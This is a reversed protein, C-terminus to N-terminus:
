EKPPRPKSRSRDYRDQGHGGHHDRYPKRYEGQGSSGYSGSGEAPAGGSGPARDYRILGRAKGTSLRRIITEADRLNAQILSYSEFVRVDGMHRRDIGSEREIFEIISMKDFNDRRGLRLFLRVTGHREVGPGPKRIERYRSRDFYKGYVHSIFNTLVREPDKEALLQRAIELSLADMEVQNRLKAESAADLVAGSETEDASQAEGTGPATEDAARAEASSKGKFVPERAAIENLRKLLRDRRAQLVAEIEPVNQKKIDARTASKIFMLKRYESPTVFTIAMGERGARGTRGIRHVYSEPDQPLSFNIVHTLNEVDIGRAAVDTAALITVQKDRFKALVDERQAQSVDGSLAEVAYGRLAMHKALEGTLVKTRCFILGYFDAEMDIIRCLAEFKDEERVEFYIQETLATTLASAKVEVKEPNKLFKEAMQMIRQPMTASFLLVRRNPNVSELIREVDEAFGMDLMEDAEDLVLYQVQSLDLTKREIHDIVRGPTGVVVDVGRKLKGIQLGIAQGGYVPFIALRKEGLLSQMEEAVQVALERTPALVLAKPPIGGPSLSEIIPLGFAATKGTGTQAQGIIDRDGSLFLPIIKRQIATPEEFGKEALAKLTVESLGLGEFGKNEDM